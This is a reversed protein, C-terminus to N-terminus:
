QKAVRRTPGWSCSPLLLFTTSSFPWHYQSAFWFVYSEHVRLYLRQTSQHGFVRQNLHGLSRPSIVSCENTSSWVSTSQHGFVRQSIVLCENASSWVNTPQHGFVRQSIVLCKTTSSGLVRRSIVLCWQLQLPNCWRMLTYGSGIRV